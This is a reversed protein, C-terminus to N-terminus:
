SAAVSLALGAGFAAAIARWPTSVDTVTALLYAFGANSFFTFAFGLTVALDGEVLVAQPFVAAITVAWAIVLLRFLRDRTGRWLAAAFAANIVVAGTILFLLSQVVPDSRM